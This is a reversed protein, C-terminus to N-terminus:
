GDALAYRVMGRVGAAPPLLAAVARLVRASGIGGAGGIGSSMELGAGRGYKFPFEISAPFLPTLESWNEETSRPNETSVFGYILCIAHVTAARPGHEKTSSSVSRPLSHSM